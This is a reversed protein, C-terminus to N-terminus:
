LRFGQGMRTGVSLWSLASLARSQLRHILQRFFHINTHGVFSVHVFLIHYQQKLWNGSRTRFAMFVKGLQLPYSSQDFTPKFCRHQKTTDWCELAKRKSQLKKLRAPFLSMCLLQILEFKLWIRGSIVSNDAMSRRFITQCITIKEAPSRLTVKTDLKPYLVIQHTTSEISLDSLFFIM